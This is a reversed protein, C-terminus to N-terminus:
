KGNPAVTIVINGRKHGQDVYRHADATQELPYCRDIVPRIKGAEVLEKLFMLDRKGEAPTGALVREGGRFSMWMMQVFEQPGGAIALYIGNQKLATKCASFSVKGVVTDLIINYSEGNTRFDEQTYDIIHDAGLSRVLELNGTSCVGAVKAGYYKALQVAYSGVGGSAGNILIKQGSQIKGLDRLFFLATTAGFPIAAAEEYTTNAPKTALAGKEPRCVYEAYAGLSNSDIGFVQDGEKFSRIDRGMAEIEGAVEVGLIKRRPKRLGFALRPVFGFGPPVFTFGRLNCDGSTVTAAHVKILVEGAKPVPKAVEKLQLVDASGYEEYVVAKMMVELYLKISGASVLDGIQAM